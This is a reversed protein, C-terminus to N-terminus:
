LKDSSAAVLTFKESKPPVEFHDKVEAQFHKFSELSSPLNPADTSARHVLHMFTKGDDLIYVAYTVDTPNLARMERMVAEINAKNQNVFDAQLTYQVRLIEMM